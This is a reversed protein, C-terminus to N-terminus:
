TMVGLLLGFTEDRGRPNGRGGVGSRGTTKEGVGLERGVGSDRVFPVEGSGGDHAYERAETVQAQVLFELDGQGAVLGGEVAVANQCARVVWVRLDIVSFWVHTTRSSVADTYAGADVARPVEGDKRQAVVAVVLFGAVARVEFVVGLNEVRGLRALIANSAPVMKEVSILLEIV